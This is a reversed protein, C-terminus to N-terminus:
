LSVGDIWVGHFGAPVRQPLLVRAIPPQDFAQADLVVFESRDDAQDHLLSILYGDDESTGDQRPVFVGEGTVRGAGCEHRVQTSAALDYKVMHSTEQFLATAYGFRARQGVLSGDVRPFEVPCDDVTEEKTAGTQLNFEWRYMETDLIM